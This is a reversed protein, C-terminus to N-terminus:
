HKIVVEVQTIAHKALYVDCHGGEALQKQIEYHGIVGNAKSQCKLDYDMRKRADVLTDRAVNLKLGITEDDGIQRPGHKKYLARYASEIVEVDKVNPSLQLVEYLDAGYVPDNPKTKHM